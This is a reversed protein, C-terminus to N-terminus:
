VRLYAHRLAPPITVRTGGESLSFLNKVKAIGDGLHAQLQHITTLMEAPSPSVMLCRMIDVNFAGRPSPQTLYDSYIKNLARSYAKPAPMQFEHNKLGIADALVKMRKRFLDNVAVGLMILVHVYVREHMKHAAERSFDLAAGKLPLVAAWTAPVSSPQSYDSGDAYAPHYKIVKNVVADGLQNGLDKATYFKLLEDGLTTLHAKLEVAVM